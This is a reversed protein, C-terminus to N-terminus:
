ACWGMSVNTASGGIPGAGRGLVAVWRILGTFDRHLFYLGRFANLSRSFPGSKRSGRLRDWERAGSSGTEDRTLLVGPRNQGVAGARSIARVNPLALGKRWFRRAKRNEPM